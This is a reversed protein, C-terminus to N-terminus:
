SNRETEEWGSLYWAMLFDTNERKPSLVCSCQHSCLVLFVEGVERGYMVICLSFSLMFATFFPAFDELIWFACSEHTNHTVGTILILQVMPHLHIWVPDSCTVLALCATIPWTTSLTSLHLPVSSHSITSQRQMGKDTQSYQYTSSWMSYDNYLHWIFILIKTCLFLTKKTHTKKPKKKEMCLKAWSGKRFSSVSDRKWLCLAFLSCSFSHATCHRRCHLDGCPSELNQAAPLHCGGVAWNELKRRAMIHRCHACRWMLWQWQAVLSHVIDGKKLEEDRYLSHLSSTDLLWGTKHLLLFCFFCSWVRLYCCCVYVYDVEVVWQLCVTSHSLFTNRFFSGMVKKSIFLQLNM